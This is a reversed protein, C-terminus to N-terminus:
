KEFLLAAYVAVEELRVETNGKSLRTKLEVSPAHPRFLRAGRYEGRVRVTILDAPESAYNILQVLLPAGGSVQLLVSAANFLRVPLNEPGLLDLLDRSLTEPDPPDDKYEVVRGGQRAYAALLKRERESPPALDTALM